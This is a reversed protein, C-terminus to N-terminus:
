ATQAKIRKRVKAAARAQAPMLLPHLRQIATTPARPGHHTICATLTPWITGRSAAPNTIAQRSARSLRSASAPSASNAIRKLGFLAIRTGNASSNAHRNLNNAVHAPADAATRRNTKSATQGLTMAQKTARAS